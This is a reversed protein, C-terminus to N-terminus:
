KAVFAINDIRWGFSTSGRSTNADTTSSSVGSAFSFRVQTKNTVASAPIALEVHAQSTQMGVFGQQGDVSFNNSQVCSYSIGRDPNIKVTGPYSGQAIQWSSGDGSVEVVAGDSWSSGYTFSLFGYAHDFAVSVSRGKCATLDVAPSLLYGRQCQAYNQTLETAFCKGSKCPTGNAATGRAWPDYPWAPPPTVGDSIGHTFGQDGSEFDFNLAALAAGCADGGDPKPNGGDDGPPPPPTTGGEVPEPVTSADLRPTDGSGEDSTDGTEGTACAALMVLVVALRHLGV